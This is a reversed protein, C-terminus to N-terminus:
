VTQLHSPSWATQGLQCLLVRVLSPVPFMQEGGGTSPLSRYHKQPTDPGRPHVCRHWGARINPTLEAREWKPDFQGVDGDGLALQSRTAAHGTPQHKSNCQPCSLPLPPVRVAAAAPPVPNGPHRPFSARAGQGREWHVTKDMLGGSAEPCPPITATTGDPRAARRLQTLPLYLGLRPLSM